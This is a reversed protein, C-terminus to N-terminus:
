PDGKVEKCVRILLAYAPEVIFTAGKFPFRIDSLNYDM